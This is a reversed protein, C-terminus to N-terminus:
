CNASLLEVIVHAARRNRRHDRQRGTRRHRNRAPEILEVPRDAQLEDALWTALSCKQLGGRQELLQEAEVAEQRDIWFRAHNRRCNSGWGIGSCFRTVGNPSMTAIGCLPMNVPLRPIMWSGAVRVSSFFRQALLAQSTHRQSYLPRLRETMPPRLQVSSNKRSSAIASAAPCRGHKKQRRSSALAKRLQQSSPLPTLCTSARSM